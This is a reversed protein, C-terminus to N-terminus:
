SPCVNGGKVSAAAVTDGEPRAPVAHPVGPPVNEGSRAKIRRLLYNSHAKLANIEFICADILDNDCVYDFRAYAARLAEGTCLLERQMECLTPDSAPKRAM